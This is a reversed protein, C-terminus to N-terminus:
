ESLSKAFILATRGRGYYNEERGQPGHGHRKYLNIAAENEADVHLWIVDCGAERASTELRRLLEGGAGRGRFEGLVELTQIYAVNGNEEPAWQVVGFGCLQEGEAAVWTAGTRLQLLRRLYARSFRLPPKFCAEEILYLAAFDDPQFLRYLV